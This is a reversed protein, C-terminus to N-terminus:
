KPSEQSSLKTKPSFLQKLAFLPAAFLFFFTFLIIKLPAFIILTPQSKLKSFSLNTLNQQIHQKFSYRSSSSTQVTYIRSTQDSLTAFYSIFWCFLYQFLFIFLSIAIIQLLFLAITQFLVVFFMMFVILPSPPLDLGSLYDIYEVSSLLCYGLSLAYLVASIIWILSLAKKSPRKSKQGLFSEPIFRTATFSWILFLGCLISLIAMKM